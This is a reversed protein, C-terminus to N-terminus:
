LDVYAGNQIKVVRIRDTPVGGATWTINEGTVGSFSIKTMADKLINCLDSASTSANFSKGQEEVAYELAQKIIYVADYADAGFQSPGSGYKAKYNDVFSKTPETQLTASFLTVLLVGDAMASDADLEKVIGDLGDGGIIAAAQLNAHREAERIFCAAAQYYIPLFVVDVDESNFKAAQATFDTDTDQAFTEEVLTVTSDTAIETRFAAAIGKSYDSGACSLMGIKKNPALTSLNDLVYEAALKGQAPDELCVRFANDYKIVDPDSGSPTLVFMNDNKASESIAVGSGSTVTGILIQMGADRLSNYANLAKEGEAVDDEFILELQVGNIGGAANVEEIALEISNKVATGYDAASGTLPGIGGIALKDGSFKRGCGTFATACMTVATAVCLLKLLMKKM